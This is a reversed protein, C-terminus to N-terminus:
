LKEQEELTAKMKKIEEQARQIELELDEKPDGPRHPFPNVSTGRLEKLKELSREELQILLRLFKAPDRASLSPDPMSGAEQSEVSQIIREAIQEVDPGANRYRFHLYVPWARNDTFNILVDTHDVGDVSPIRVRKYPLGNITGKSAPLMIFGYLRTGPWNGVYVSLIEEGQYMFSYVRFDELWTPHSQIRVNHPYQLIFGEGSFEQVPTDAANNADSRRAEALATDDARADRKDTGSTSTRARM